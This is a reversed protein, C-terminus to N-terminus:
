GDTLEKLFEERSIKNLTLEEPRVGELVDGLAYYLEPATEAVPLKSNYATIHLARIAKLKDILHQQSALQRQIRALEDTPNRPM